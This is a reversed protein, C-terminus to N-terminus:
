SRGAPIVVIYLDAIELLQIIKLRLIGGRIVVLGYNRPMDFRAKLLRNRLVGSEKV